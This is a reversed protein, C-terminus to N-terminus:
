NCYKSSETALGSFKTIECNIQQTQLRQCTIETVKAAETLLNLLLLITFVSSFAGIGLIFWPFFRLTLKNQAQKVIPM